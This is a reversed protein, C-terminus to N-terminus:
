QGTDSANGDVGDCNQDIGDGVPDDAGPHVSPDAEDCDGSGLSFGDGDADISTDYAIGYLSTACGLMGGPPVLGLLVLLAPSLTPRKSPNSM